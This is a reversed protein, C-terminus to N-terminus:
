EGAKTEQGPHGSIIRLSTSPDQQSPRSAATLVHEKHLQEGAAQAKQYRCVVGGMRVPRFMERGQVAFSVDKVRLIPLHQLCESTVQTPDQDFM